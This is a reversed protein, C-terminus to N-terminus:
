GDMWGNMGDMWGGIWQMERHHIFPPLCVQLSSTSSNDTGSHYVHYTANSALPTDRHKWVITPAPLGLAHCTLNHRAGAWSYVVLKDDRAFRPKDAICAM